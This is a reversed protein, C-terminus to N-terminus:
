RQLYSFKSHSEEECVAFAEGLCNIIDTAIMSHQGYLSAAIDGALGHLYVARAVGLATMLDRAELAKAAIKQGVVEALKPDDSKGSKGLLKKIEKGEPDDGPRWMPVAGQLPRQALIAAVVGTLVDGSGGKAMGPNGTLSIWVYDNPSAIVTRHGKLVVCARTLKAAKLAAGIRNAQVAATPIELLRAM